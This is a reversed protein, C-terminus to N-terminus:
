IEQEENPKAIPVEAYEIPLLHKENVSIEPLVHGQEVKITITVTTKQYAQDILKDANQFIYLAAKRTRQIVDLRYEKGARENTM